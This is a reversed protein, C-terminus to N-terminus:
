KAAYILGVNAAAYCALAIGYGVNGQLAYAAGAVVYGCSMVALFWDGASVSGGADRRRM